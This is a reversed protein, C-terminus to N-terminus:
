GQGRVRGVEVAVQEAQWLHRHQHRPLITLAAYLNYRARPDFPSAVRVRSLALGDGQEVCRIQAQQHRAFQDRLAAPAANGSPVFEAATRMRFRVPPAMTRWLLWGLPDRRFRAPATTGLGRAEDLAEELVPLFAASTLNLHAVCEGVSWRKPDSRVPWAEDPVRASLRELREQASRFEEVVAQLQPHM